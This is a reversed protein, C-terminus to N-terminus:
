LNMGNRISQVEGLSLGSYEAIKSLPLQGDALMTHATERRGTEAGEKRGTEIGKNYIERMIPGMAEREEKDEKAEAAKGRLDTYYMKGPDPCMFDHMLRGLETDEEALPAVVYVIHTGDGFIKWTEAVRRDITYVAKGDGIIDGWTIFIVYSEPLTDYGEGKGLVSTDMMASYYRARQPLAGKEDVQIEIDYLRGEEDTCYADLRVSHHAINQMEYETEISRVRIDDRALIIRVILEAGKINGRMCLAFFEHDEMTIRRICDNTEAATLEAM